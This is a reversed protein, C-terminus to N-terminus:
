CKHYKIEGGFTSPDYPPDEHSIDIIDRVDPWSLGFEIPNHCGPDNQRLTKMARFPSPQPPVGGDLKRVIRPSVSQIRSWKELNKLLWKDEKLHLLQWGLSLLENVHKSLFEGVLGCLVNPSEYMVSHGANPIICKKVVAVSHTSNCGDGGGSGGGGTEPEQERRREQEQEQEQEQDQEREQDREREREQEREREREQGQGQEQGQEQEPEQEQGGEGADAGGSSSDQSQQKKAPDFWSHILDVGSMPTVKDETAGLLLIPLRLALWQERTPLRLGRVMRRWVPTRSEKNFRLQLKRVEESANGAVFRAVSASHGGGRRDYLRFLDFIFEPLRVAAEAAKREKESVAPKPCIAILGVTDRELLGGQTALTVALACGMSHGILVLGQDEIRYQDIVRAILACLAPTSYAAWDKPAFDSGGCGPLDIALVHSFHVQAVM